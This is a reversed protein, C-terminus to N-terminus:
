RSEQVEMKKAITNLKNGMTTHDDAQKRLWEAKTSSEANQQEEEPGKFADKTTKKFQVKYRSRAKKAETGELGHFRMNAEEFAAAILDWQMM